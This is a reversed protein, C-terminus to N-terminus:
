PHGAPDGLGLLGALNGGLIKRLVPDPIRCSVVQGLRYAQSAYPLDSGYLVRDELGCAVYHELTGALTTSSATDFYVNPCDGYLEPYHRCGGAHAAIFRAGPFSRAVAPTLYGHCLVPCRREQCFQWIAQLSDASLRMAATDRFPLTEYANHVKVGRFGLEDFCRRLESLNWDPGLSPATAAFAVFRGPHARVAAAVDDNARRVDPCNWKNICVARVGLRDMAAVIAAADAGRNTTIKWLDLHGHADLILVDRLPEGRLAKQLISYPSM